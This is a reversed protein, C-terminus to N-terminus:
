RNKGATRSLAAAVLASAAVVASALLWGPAEGLPSSSSGPAVRDARQASLVFYAGFLVCSTVTLSATVPNWRHWATLLVPLGLLVLGGLLFPVLLLVLDV